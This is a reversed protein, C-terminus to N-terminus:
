PLRLGTQSNSPGSQHSSLLPLENFGVLLGTINRTFLPVCKHPLINFVEPFCNDNNGVPGNCRMRSRNKPRKDAVKLACPMVNRPLGAIVTASKICCM